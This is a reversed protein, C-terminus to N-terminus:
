TKSSSRRVRSSCRAAPVLRSTRAPTFCSVPGCPSFLARVPSPRRPQMRSVEHPLRHKRFHLHRCLCDAYLHRVLVAPPLPALCLRHLHPSVSSVSGFSPADPTATCCYARASFTRARSSSPPRVALNLVMGVVMCAVFGILRQTPPVASILMVFTRATRLVTDTPGYQFNVQKRSLTAWEGFEDMLGPPETEM